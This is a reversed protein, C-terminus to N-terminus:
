VCHELLFLGRLVLSRKTLSIALKVFTRINSSEEQRPLLHWIIDKVMKDKFSVEKAKVKINVKDKDEKSTATEEEKTVVKDKDKNNTAKDKVVKDQDKNLM